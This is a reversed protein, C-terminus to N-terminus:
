LTTTSKSDIADARLESRARPDIELADRDDIQPNMVRHGTAVLVGNNAVPECPAPHLGSCLSAPDCCVHQICKVLANQDWTVGQEVNKQEM